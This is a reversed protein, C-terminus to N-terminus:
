AGSKRRSPALLHARKTGLFSARSYDPLFTSASFGYKIFNGASTYFLAVEEVNTVPSYYPFKRLSSLFMSSAVVFVVIALLWGASSALPLRHKPRLRFLYGEKNEQIEVGILAFIGSLLRHIM